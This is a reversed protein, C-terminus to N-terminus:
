WLEEELTGHDRQLHRQLWLFPRLESETQDRPQSKSFGPWRRSKKSYGHLDSEGSSFAMEGEGIGFLVVSPFRRALQARREHDHAVVSRGAGLDYHGCVQRGVSYSGSDMQKSIAPMSFSWRFQFRGVRSDHLNGIGGPLHAPLFLPAGSRGPLRAADWFRGPLFDGLMSHTGAETSLFLGRFIGLM